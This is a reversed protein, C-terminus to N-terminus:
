AATAPDTAQSLRGAADYTYGITRVLTTGDYWKEDTQRNAKDYVWEIKRGLRDIRETLNGADDYAFTRTKNLENTESKALGLSNYAWTAENAVPDLLSILLGRADFTQVTVPNGLSGGGDPDPLTTSM